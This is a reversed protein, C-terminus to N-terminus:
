RRAMCREVSDKRFSFIRHGGYDARKQAGRAKIERHTQAVLPPEGPECGDGHQPECEAVRLRPRNEKSRECREREAQEIKQPGIASDQRRGDQDKRDACRRDRERSGDHTCGAHLATQAAHRRHKGERCEPRHEVKEGREIRRASRHARRSGSLDARRHQHLARREYAKEAHREQHANDRGAKCRRQARTRGQGGGDGDREEGDVCAVPVPTHRLRRLAGHAYGEDFAVVGDAAELFVIFVCREFGDIGVRALDRLKLVAAHLEDHQRLVDRAYRRCPAVFGLRFERGDERRVGRQDHAEVGKDVAGHAVNGPRIRRARFRGHSVLLTTEHRHEFDATKVGPGPGRVSALPVPRSIQLSM